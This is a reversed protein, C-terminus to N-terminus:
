GNRRRDYFWVPLALAETLIVFALLQWGGSVPLSSAILGPLAVTWLVVAIGTLLSGVTGQWSGSEECIGDGTDDETLGIFQSLADM